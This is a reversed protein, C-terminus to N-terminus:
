YKSNLFSFFLFFCERCRCTSTDSCREHEEFGCAKGKEGKPSIATAPKEEEELHEDEIKRKKAPTEAEQAKDETNKALEGNDHETAVKEM